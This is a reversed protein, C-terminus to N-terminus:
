NSNVSALTNYKLGSFLGHGLAYSGTRLFAIAYSLNQTCAINEAYQISKGVSTETTSIDRRKFPESHRSDKLIEM